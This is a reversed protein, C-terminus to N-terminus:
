LSHHWFVTLDNYIVCNKAWISRGKILKSPAFGDVSFAVSIVAYFLVLFKMKFLRKLCSPIHQHVFRKPACRSSRKTLSDPRTCSDSLSHAASLSVLIRSVMNVSDAVDSLHRGHCFTSGINLVAFSIQYLKRWLNVIPKVTQLSSRPLRIYAIKKSKSFTLMLYIVNSSLIFTRRRFARNFSCYVKGTIWLVSQALSYMQESFPM